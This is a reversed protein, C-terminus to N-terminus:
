ASRVRRRWNDILVLMSALAPPVAFVGWSLWLSQFADFPLVLPWSWAITSYPNRILWPKGARSRMREATAKTIARSWLIIIPFVWLAYGLGDPM